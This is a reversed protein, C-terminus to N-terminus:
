RRRIRVVGGGERGIGYYVKADSVGPTKRVGAVKSESFVAREDELVVALASGRRVGLRLAMRQDLFVGKDGDDFEIDVGEGEFTSSGVFGAETFRTVDVVFVLEADDKGALSSRDKAPTTLRAKEKTM